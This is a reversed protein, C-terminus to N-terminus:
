LRPKLNRVFRKSSDTELVYKKNIERKLEEYFSSTYSNPQEKVFERPVALEPSTKKPRRVRKLKKSVVFQFNILNLSINKTDNSFGVRLEELKSPELNMKKFIQHRLNDSSLYKVLNKLSKNVFTSLSLGHTFTLNQPVLDEQFGLKALSGLLNSTRESATFLHRVTHSM